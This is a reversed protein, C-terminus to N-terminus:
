QRVAQCVIERRTGVRKGDYDSVRSQALEWADISCSRFGAGYGDTHECWGDEWLAYLSEEAERSMGGTAAAASGRGDGATDAAVVERGDAM